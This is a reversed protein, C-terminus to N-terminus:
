ENKETCTFKCNGVIEYSGGHFEFRVSNKGSAYEHSSQNTLKKGHYLAFRLKGDDPWPVESVFDYVPTREPQIGFPEDISINFVNALVPLLIVDPCSLQQEWKSVAQMSVGVVQGLEAQTLNRSIRLNRIINGITNQYM